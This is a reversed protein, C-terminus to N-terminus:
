MAAEKLESNADLETRVRYTEGAVARFSFYQHPKVASLQGSITGRGHEFSYTNIGDSISLTTTPPAVSGSAVVEARPAAAAAVALAPAPGQSTQVQPPPGPIAIQSRTHEQQMWALTSIQDQLQKMLSLQEQMAKNQAQAQVLPGAQRPLEGAAHAAELSAILDDFETDAPRASASDEHVVQPMARRVVVGRSACLSALGGLIVVASVIAASRGRHRVTPPAADGLEISGYQTSREAVGESVIAM